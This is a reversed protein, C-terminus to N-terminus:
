IVPFVASPERPPLSNLWEVTCSLLVITEPLLTGSPTPPPIAFTVNSAEMGAVRRMFLPWTVPLLASKPAPPIGSTPSEAVRCLTLMDEFVGSL